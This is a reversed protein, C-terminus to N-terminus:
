RAPVKKAEKLTNLVKERTIPLEKIRIGVANYIANGIAPATPCIVGEGLGRAGYPGERHHIGEILISKVDENRPIEMFTPIKYDMFNPNVVIGNSMAMEEYVCLSIGMGAGGDIQCEAMKPNIPTGMDFAGAIRLVKVEGTEINVAVEVAQAGYSYYTVPRASQGTDPDPVIMPVNFSDKGMIEGGKLTIDLGPIPTFLDSIPIWRGPTDTVFIKGDRVELSAPNVGLVGAAIDFVQRKADLCARKVANGLYFVSRSSIAGMDFPCFDSDGYVIKVRDASTGFEEAAIQALVTHLGQGQECGGHRVEITGERHVKVYAVSWFYGGVGTFKASVALGKGRRWPGEEQEPKKDWEIWKAAADLSERVGISYTTRGSVDVEGEKLFNKRRFEVPDMGIKEAILDIQQELGWNVEPVGLGRFPATMPQNTWVGYSDILVNSMKYIPTAGYSCMRAVILGGQAHRGADVIAKVQRAVITGDKKVGDKVYTVVAVRTNADVFQEERTYVLRIPKGSKIKLALIAVIAELGAPAAKGGFGGGIYGAMVRLKSPPLNFLRGLMAEVVWINQTSSRICLVGDPEVWAEAQHTELQCHHVRPAFYRNEVIFDAEKFGKEIDGKEIHFHLAVNPPLEEEKGGFVTGPVAYEERDPHLVTKPEMELSEEPDFIAPLEEYEVDILEVADLAIEITDAAVAAVPEGVARVVNDHALQYHDWINVYGIRVPPADKGTVVARVGPLREAKSTDISLIRAHPYPSRLVKAHLMGAMKFDSLFKARGTVKELADIKTVSKGVVSLESM